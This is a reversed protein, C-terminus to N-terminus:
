RCGVEGYSNADTEDGRGRPCAAAAFLKRVPVPAPFRAPEGPETSDDYICNAAALTSTFGPIGVLPAGPPATKGVDSPGVRGFRGVRPPAQGQDDKSM